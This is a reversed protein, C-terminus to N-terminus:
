VMNFYISWTHDTYKARPPTGWRRRQISPFGVQLSGKRCHEANFGLVYQYPDPLEVYHIRPAPKENAAMTGTQIEMPYVLSDGVKFHVVRDCSQCCWTVNSQPDVVQARMRGRCQPDVRVSTGPVPGNVLTIDSSNLPFDTQMKYGPIHNAKSVPGGWAPPIFLDMDLPDPLADPTYAAPWLCRHSQQMELVIIRQTGNHIESELWFMGDTIITRDNKVVVGALYTPCHHSVHKSIMVQVNSGYLGRRFGVYKFQFSIAKGCM